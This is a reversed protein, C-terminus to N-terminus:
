SLDLLNLWDFLSYLLLILFIFVYIATTLFFSYLLFTSMWRYASPFEAEVYLSLRKKGLKGFTVTYCFMVGSAFPSRGVHKFLNAPSEPGKNTMYKDIFRYPTCWHLVSMLFLFGLSILLAVFSVIFLVDM